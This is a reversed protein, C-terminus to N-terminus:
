FLKCKKFKKVNWITQYWHLWLIFSTNLWQSNSTKVKLKTSNMYLKTSQNEVLGFLSVEL